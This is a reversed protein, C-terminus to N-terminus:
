LGMNCGQGSARLALSGEAKFRWNSPMFWPPLKDKLRRSPEPTFKWAPLPAGQVTM